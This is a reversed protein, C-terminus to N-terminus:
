SETKTQMYLHHLFFAEDLDPKVTIIEPIEAEPPVKYPKLQFEKLVRHCTTRSVGAQQSLQRISTNPCKLIDHRIKEIVLPTKVTPRRPAKIANAVSGTTKWKKYLDQITSTSPPKIDPYKNKFMQKTEKISGTKVYFEVIDIRCEIAFRVM